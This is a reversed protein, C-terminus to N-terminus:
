NATSSKSATAPKGSDTNKVSPKAQKFSIRNEPIEHFVAHAVGSLPYRYMGFAVFAAVIEAIEQEVVRSLAAGFFMQGAQEFAKVAGFFPARAFQSARAEAKRNHAVGNSEVVPVNRHAVAFASSQFEQECQLSLRQLLFWVALCFGAACYRGGAFVAPFGLRTCQTNFSIGWM